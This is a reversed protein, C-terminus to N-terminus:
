WKDWLWLMHANCGSVVQGKLIGELCSRCNGTSNVKWPFKVVWFCLHIHIGMKQWPTPYTLKLSGPCLEPIRSCLSENVGFLCWRHFCSTVSWKSFMLHPIGHFQGLLTFRDELLNALMSHTLVEEWRLRTDLSNWPCLM